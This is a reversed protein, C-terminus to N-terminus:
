TVSIQFSLKQYNSRFGTQSDLLLYRCHVQYAPLDLDWVDKYGPVPVDVICDPSTFPAASIFNRLYGGNRGAGPETFQLKTLLRYRSAEANKDCIFHFRLVLSDEGAVVVSHFEATYTPFPEPTHLVPVRENGLQAYGHYASVFLNYGSIHHDKRFPPRHSPVNVAMSNWSEQVSPDLQRWAQLARLHVSQAEMQGLTGPFVPHAKSKWYCIGDIHFFTIDGVSSWCDEFPMSPIYKPM